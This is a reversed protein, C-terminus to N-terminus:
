ADTSVEHAEAPLVDSPRSRHVGRAPAAAGERRARTRPAAGPLMGPVRALFLVLLCTGLLVPLRTDAKVLWYFHVVGLSAAVYIGRHLVTWRRGLRRIWGRTSTVALPILFLFAAMGVTIYPREAIDAAMYGFDLLNYLAFWITFHCFAYFFAFLGLPRRLKIVPNWGTLRRVPTVTLTVLLLVLTTMGTVHTLKEAPNAGLWEPRLFLGTALWTFPALAAVWLVVKLAVITRKSGM